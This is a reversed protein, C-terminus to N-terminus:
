DADWSRWSGKGPLTLKRGGLRYSIWFMFHDLLHRKGSIPNRHWWRYEDLQTQRDTMGRDSELPLREM